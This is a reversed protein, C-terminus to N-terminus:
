VTHYGSFRYEGGRRTILDGRTIVKIVKLAPLPEISAHTEGSRSSGGRGVRLFKRRLAEVSNQTEVMHHCGGWRGNWSVCVVKTNKPSIAALFFAQPGLFFKSNFLGLVIMGAWPTRLIRPKLAVAFGCALIPDIKRKVPNPSDAGPIFAWSKTCAKTCLVYM